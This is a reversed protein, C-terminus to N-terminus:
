QGGQQRNAHLFADSDSSLARDIAADGVALLRAAADGLDDLSSGSPAGGGATHRQQEDSRRERERM